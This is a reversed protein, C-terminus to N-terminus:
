LLLMSLSAKNTPLQTVVVAFSLCILAAPVLGPSGGLGQDLGHLM